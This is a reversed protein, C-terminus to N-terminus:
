FRKQKNAELFDHHRGLFVRSVFLSGMGALDLVVGVLQTFLLHRLQILALTRRVAAAVALCM